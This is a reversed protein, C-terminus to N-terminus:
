FHNKLLEVNDELTSNLAVGSNELKETYYDKISEWSYYPFTATTIPFAIEQENRLMKILHDGNNEYIIWQINAGMPTIESGRWIEAVLDPNDQSENAGAIDLYSSLPIITEAHAFNFIGSLNNDQLANDTSILLEKVLPAAIDQPLDTSTLSPGKAYYTELIDLKEYWALQEQTFYQGFDFTGEQTINSAIIYLQYLNNAADEPSRLKVRGKEDEFALTGDSLAEYLEESIFQSIIAHAFEATQPQQDLYAELVEQWEGGSKYAKYQTALDYPRLYPDSGKAYQEATIPPTQEGLAVKLGELFHDRSQPARDKYTAHAEIPRGSEFVDAFQKGMRQGIANLEEGGSLSLEGYVDKEVEMLRAIQQQLAQGADTLQQEREALALLENLTKDYKASSLHRSGHRGVYNIFVPQYGEPAPTYRTAVYPYPSKTSLHADIAADPNVEPTNEALANSSYLWATAALATLCLSRPAFAQM